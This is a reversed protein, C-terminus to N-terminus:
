STLYPTLHNIRVSDVTATLNLGTGTLRITISGSEIREFACCVTGFPPTGTIELSLLNWAQFEMNIANYRSNRSWRQPPNTPIDKLSLSFKLTTGEDLLKLSLLRTQDLVPDLSGYVHQVLEPNLTVTRWNIM